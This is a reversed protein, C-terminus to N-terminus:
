QTTLTKGSNRNIIEQKNIEVYRCSPEKGCKRCILDYASNITNCEPCSFHGVMEKFWREYGVEEIRKQSKWLEIRHAYVSQFDKLEDCPYEDCYVCFDIRKKAACAVMKCTKCYATRKESRCGEGRTEETSQNLRVSLKKLREPDEKSAIFLTCSPCFLGCVAAHKKDPIM